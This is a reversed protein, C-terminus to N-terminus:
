KGHELTRRLERLESRIGRLETVVNGLADAASAHPALTGAVYGAALLVLALATRRM